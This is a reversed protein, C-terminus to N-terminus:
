LRTDWRGCWVLENYRGKFESKGTIKEVLAHLYERTPAYANIFTKMMPVDILHNTYNLSVALTPVEHEFWPIEYSHGVSYVIRTNNAQAYGKMAYAVIVLDFDKKFQEISTKAMMRGRNSPHQHEMELEYYDTAASVEFGANELEEILMNKSKDTGDLLSVPASQLYYLKVRKRKAPNVPLLRQTDKM